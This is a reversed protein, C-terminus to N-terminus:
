NKKALSRDALATPFAKLSRSPKREELRIKERNPGVFKSLDRNVSIPPDRYQNPQPVRSLEVLEISRAHIRYWILDNSVSLRVCLNPSLFLCKRGDPKVVM